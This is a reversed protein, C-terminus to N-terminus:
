RSAFMNGPLRSDKRCVTPHHPLRLAIALHAILMTV